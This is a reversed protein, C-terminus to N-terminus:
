KLDDEFIDNYIKYDKIQALAINDMDIDEDEAVTEGLSELNEKIYEHRGEGYWTWNDVGAGELYRLEAAATLLELLNEKDILYMEKRISM